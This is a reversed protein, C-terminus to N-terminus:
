DGGPPLYRGLISRAQEIALEGDAIEQELQAVQERLGRLRRRESELVGREAAARLDLRVAALRDDAQQRTRELRRQLQPILRELTLRRLERAALEEDSRDDSAGDANLASLESQADNLAVGAANNARLDARAAAVVAPDLQAIAADALAQGAARRADERPNPEAKPPQWERPVRTDRWRFPNAPLELISM